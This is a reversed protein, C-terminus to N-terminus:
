FTYRYRHAFAAHITDAALRLEQEYNLALAYERGNRAIDAAMSQALLAWTAKEHFDHLDSAVPVYHVWPKLERADWQLWNSEVMLICCGLRLKKVLGWSNANGDIQITAQYDAYEQMETWDRLFGERVIRKHIIAEQEADAAQVIGFFAINAKEGLRLGKQCLRYRPLNPFTQGTFGLIGTTTGRWFIAAKRAGWDPVSEPMFDQYGNAETYYYDPVLTVNRFNKRIQWSVSRLDEPTDECQFVFEFKQNEDGFWGSGNAFIREIHLMTAFIRGSMAGNWGFHLKPESGCEVKVLLCNPPIGATELSAKFDDETPEFTHFRSLDFSM